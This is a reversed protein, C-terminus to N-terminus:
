GFLLGSNPTVSLNKLKFIKKYLLVNKSMQKPLCSTNNFLLRIMNVEAERRDTRLKSNLLM